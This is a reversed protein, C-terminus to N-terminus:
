TRVGGAPLGRERVWPIVHACTLGALPLATDHRPDMWIAEAIEASPRVDGTWVGHFMEAQVVYGPENAAPAAFCGVPQVAIAGPVLGLEEHLERILAQHPTEPPDIKGGPQMFWRTGAKRVLLVRGDSDQLIAAAIRIVKSASPHTM